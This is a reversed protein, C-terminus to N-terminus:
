ASPSRASARRGSGSAARSWQLSRLTVAV